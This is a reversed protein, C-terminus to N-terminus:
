RDRKQAKLHTGYSHEDKNSTSIQGLVIKLTVHGKYCSLSASHVDSNDNPKIVCNILKVNGNYVNINGSIICNQLSLSQNNRSIDGAIKNYIPFNNKIYLINSINGCSTNM